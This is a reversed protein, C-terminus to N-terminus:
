FVTPLRPEERGVVVGRGYPPLVPTGGWARLAAAHQDCANRLLSRHWSRSEEPARIIRRALIDPVKNVGLQRKCLIITTGRPAAQFLCTRRDSGGVYRFVAEPSRPM